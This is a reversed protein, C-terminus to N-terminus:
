RPMLAQKALAAEPIAVLHSAHGLVVTWSDPVCRNFCVISCHHTRLQNFCVKSSREGLSSVAAICARTAANVIMAAAGFAWVVLGESLLPSADSVFLEYMFATFILKRLERRKRAQARWRPRANLIRRRLKRKEADSLVREQRDSTCWSRIRSAVRWFCNAHMCLVLVCLAIASVGACCPLSM